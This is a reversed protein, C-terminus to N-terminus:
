KLKILKSFYKVNNGNLYFKNTLSGKGIVSATMWISGIDNSLDELNSVFNNIKTMDSPIQFEDICLHVQNGSKLVPEFHFDTKIEEM